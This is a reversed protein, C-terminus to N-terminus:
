KEGNGMAEKGGKEGNKGTGPVEGESKGECRRTFINYM